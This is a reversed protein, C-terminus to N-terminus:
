RSEGKDDTANPIKHRQYSWTLPIDSSRLMIERAQDECRPKTNKKQHFASPYKAKIVDVKQIINPELNKWGYLGLFDWDACEAIETAIAIARKREAKIHAVPHGSGLHPIKWLPALLGGAVSITVGLGRYVYGEVERVGGPTATLFKNLTWKM